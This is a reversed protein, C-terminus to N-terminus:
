PLFIKSIYFCLLRFICRYLLQGYNPQSCRGYGMKIVHFTAASNQKMLYFFRNKSFFKFPFDLGNQADKTRMTIHTHKNVNQRVCYIFSNFNWQHPGESSPNLNMFFPFIATRNM